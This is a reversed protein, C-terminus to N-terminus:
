RVSALNIEWNGIGVYCHTPTGDTNIKLNSVFYLMGVDTQIGMRKNKNLDWYWVVEDPDDDSNNVELHHWGTREFHMRQDPSLREAWLKISTALASTFKEPTEKLGLEADPYYLARIIYKDLILVNIEPTGITPGFGYADYANLDTTIVVIGELCPASVSFM